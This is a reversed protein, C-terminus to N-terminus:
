SSAPLRPTPPVSPMSTVVANLRGVLDPTAQGSISVRTGGEPLEALSITITETEKVLLFLLGVLFFLAGLVALVVAWTPTRRRTLILSNGAQNVTYGSAGATAGVFQQMVIDPKEAVTVNQIYSQAGVTLGGEIPQAQETGDASGHGFKLPRTVLTTPPVRLVIAKIARTYREVSEAVMLEGNARIARAPDAAAFATPDVRYPSSGGIESQGGALTACGVHCLHQLRQVLEDRASTWLRRALYFDGLAQRFEEDGLIRKFIEENSDMRKVITDIFERESM